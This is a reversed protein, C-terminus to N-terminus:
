SDKRSFIQYGPQPINAWLYDIVEHALEESSYEASYSIGKYEKYGKFKYSKIERDEFRFNCIQHIVEAKTGIYPTGNYVVCYTQM